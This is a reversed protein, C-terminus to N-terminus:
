MTFVFPILSMRFVNSNELAKRSAHFVQNDPISSVIIDPELCEFATLVM